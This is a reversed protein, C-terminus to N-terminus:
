LSVSYRLCPPKRNILFYINQLFIQKGPALDHYVLAFIMVPITAPVKGWDGSGELGSWGGFAVAIVEITLLLGTCAYHPLM